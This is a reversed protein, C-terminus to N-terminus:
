IKIFPQTAAQLSKKGTVRGYTNQLFTTKLFKVFNVPFFVQALTEKKLFLVSVCTNKLSSQMIKLFMKKVSYRQHISKFPPIKRVVSLLHQPYYRTHTILKPM